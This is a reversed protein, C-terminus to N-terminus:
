SNLSSITGITSACGLAASAELDEVEVEPEDARVTLKDATKDSM